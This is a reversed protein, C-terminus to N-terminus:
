EGDYGEEEGLIWRRSIHPQKSTDKTNLYDARKEEKWIPRRDLQGLLSDSTIPGFPTLFPVGFSKANAMLLHYIFFLLTIGFFGAFNGILIFAFRVIRYAYGLSFNPVAFSGIGTVAVIIILIPSVINAAVAAQGLILAGIIGLTPGIPGPIRIGAERILEFAVEMLLIEVVTPFPVKERSGAIALLLDTPIMEQHFNAIAVYLGPLLVSVLIGLIRVIRVLNSYPFRIYTDESSHTFEAMTTPMVLVFPSGHVVVAVKGDGLAAAVRDPRETAMIQPAIFLSQDEILQELEGSDLLYDIKVSKLRKRVEEVLSDNAINKVYMLACPTKSRRGIEITEAILDKDKMIKRILATNTRLVENFGEQPGRIVLETNPRSVSRHEWTKVDAIFVTDLGDVFIACGGFNISGEVKEFQSTQKLQNQPVLVNIICDALEEQCDATQQALFMLPQLIFLNILQSNVMGDIFVIFADVKKEKLQISFERLIIDGNQPISYYEKLRDKNDKLQTSFDSPADPKEQEDQKEKKQAKKQPEETSSGNKKDKDQPASATIDKKQLLLSENKVRKKGEKKPESEQQNEQTGNDDQNKDSQNNEPQNRDSQSKDSQNKDPQNKDPQNKGSQNKDSQNKDSQNSEKKNEKIIFYEKKPPERFFLMEKVLKRVDVLIKVGQVLYEMTVNMNIISLNCLLYAFSSM